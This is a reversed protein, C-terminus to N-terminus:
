VVGPANQALTQAIADAQPDVAVPPLVPPGPVVGPPVQPPLGPVAGPVGPPAVPGPAPEPAPPPTASALLREITFEAPLNFVEQFRMLWARAVSGPLGPTDAVSALNIMPEMILMSIERAEQETAPGSPQDTTLISWEVELWERKIEVKKVGASKGEPDNVRADKVWVGFSEESRAKMLALWMRFVLRAVKALIRDTQARLFGSQSAEYRNLANIEAASAYKLPEGRSSPSTGSTQERAQELMRLYELSTASANPQDLWRLSESLRRAGQLKIVTGDKGRELAAKNDDDLVDGLAILMRVADMRSQNAAITHMVTLESNLHFLAGVPEIGRLAHGPRPKLVIPIIQCAPKGDAYTFSFPGEMLPLLSHNGVNADSKPAKVDVLYVRFAGKVKIPEGDADPDNTDVMGEQDWFELVRVYEGEKDYDSEQDTLPDTRAEGCLRNNGSREFGLEELESGYREWLRARTEWYAHGMYRASRTDRSDRDWVCEWPPLIQMNIAKPTSEVSRDLTLKFAGEPYLLGQSLGHQTEEEAGVSRYFAQLAETLAEPADAPLERQVLPDRSVPAKIGRYFVSYLFAEVFGQLHNVQAFIQDPRGDDTSTFIGGELGRVGEWTRNEYADRIKQWFPRRESITRDHERLLSAAQKHSISM